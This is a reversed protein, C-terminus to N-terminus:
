AADILELFGEGRKLQQYAKIQNLRKKVQEYHEFEQLAKQFGQQYVEPSLVAKKTTTPIM